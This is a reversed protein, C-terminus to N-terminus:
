SPEYEETPANRRIEVDLGFDKEIVIPEETPHIRNWHEADFSLQTIDGVVQERRITLSRHMPERPAEDIDVWLRYQVDDRTVSYVHNVRYSQGTERDTRTEERAAAAFQRALVEIPDIPLPLTWGKGKAFLAVEKLDVEKIGTERKYYRIFKQMEEHRSM